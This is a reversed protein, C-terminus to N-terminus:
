RYFIESDEIGLRVCGLSAPKGLEELGRRGEECIPVEHFGYLNDPTFGVWFPLWCNAIDSYIMVSKNYVKFRGTPTPTEPRGTSVLFEGVVRGGEFIKMKQRSLDVEIRKELGIDFIQSINALLKEWISAEFPYTPMRFGRELYINSFVLVVALVIILSIVISLLKKSM